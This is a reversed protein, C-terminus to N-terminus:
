NIWDSISPQEREAHRGAYQHNRKSDNKAADTANRPPPPTYITRESNKAKHGNPQTRFPRTFDLPLPIELGYFVAQEFFLRGPLGPEGNDGCHVPSAQYM